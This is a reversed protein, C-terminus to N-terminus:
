WFRVPRFGEPMQIGMQPRSSWHGEPLVTGRLQRLTEDAMTKAEGATARKAEHEELLRTLLHAVSNDPNLEKLATAHKAVKLPFQLVDKITPRGPELGAMSLAIRGLGWVDSAEAGHKKTRAQEPSWYLTTGRARGRQADRTGLMGGLDSVLVYLPETARVLVNSPKMDGHLM